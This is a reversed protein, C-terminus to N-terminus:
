FLAEEKKSDDGYLSSTGNLSLEPNGSYRERYYAKITQLNGIEQLKDTPLEEDRATAAIQYSTDYMGVGTRKVRIVGKDLNGWDNYVDVLQNWIYDSRGFSLAVVKFDNVEQRYMKRGGPGEIETWAEQRRDAHIIEHVYGWFAFKHSPRVNDPVSSTDVSEDKLLNIWRNDERFTYLYIDDLRDDDENGTAVPTIFAQDGDKFWIEQRAAQDTNPNRFAERQSVIRSIGAM